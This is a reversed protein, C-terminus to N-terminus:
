SIQVSSGPTTEIDWRFLHTLFPEQVNKTDVLLHDVYYYKNRATVKYRTKYYSM